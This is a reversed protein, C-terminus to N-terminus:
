NSMVPVVVDPNLIVISDCDWGYMANYTFGNIVVEVADYERAIALFDINWASESLFTRAYPVVKSFDDPSEILLVRATPKLTFTFSNSEKCECFHEADTWDKWGYNADVPSAWLGGFPKNTGRNEIPRFVSRDFSQSGYHIYNKM